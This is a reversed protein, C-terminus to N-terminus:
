KTKHLLTKIRDVFSGADNRRLRASDKDELLNENHIVKATEYGEICATSYPLGPVALVNDCLEVLSILDHSVVIASIQHQRVYSRLVKRVTAAVRVDLASFPEDAILLRPNAALARLIASQQIMGGSCQPPRLGFDLRVEFERALETVHDRSAGSIMTINKLLSAWPYFSEVYAQPVFGLRQASFAQGDIKIEGTRWDHLGAICRILTTKGSGNPGAVGLISGPLIDLSVGWFVPKGQERGNEEFWACLQRITLGSLSSDHQADAEVPNM